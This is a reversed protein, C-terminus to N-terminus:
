VEKYEFVPRFGIAVSSLNSENLTPTKGYVYGRYIRRTNQGNLTPVTTHVMGNAPTDQCWTGIGSWHFVDDSTKGSQIKDAPFNVIYKDWENNTPWAGFGKDTLSMNGNADAFAVGGTLSRVVGNIGNFPIALPRGQIVKSANLSDWTTTHYIVRDSVIIGKAVKIFYFFGNLSAYPVGTVPYEAHSGTTKLYENDWSGNTWYAPIYDGIQMDSVKTRLVGTTAPVGM